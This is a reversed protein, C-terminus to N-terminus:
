PQVPPPFGNHWGKDWGDAPRRKGNLQDMIFQSAASQFSRDLYSEERRVPKVGPLEAAACFARSLADAFDKENEFISMKKM